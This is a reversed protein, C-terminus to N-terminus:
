LNKLRLRTYTHQTSMKMKLILISLKSIPLTVIKFGKFCFIHVRWKRLFLLNDDYQRGGVSVLVKLGLM